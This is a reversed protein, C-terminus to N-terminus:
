GYITFHSTGALLTPLNEREFNSRKCAFQVIEDLIDTIATVTKQDDREIVLVIPEDSETSSISVIPIWSEDHTIEIIVAIPNGLPTCASYEWILSRGQTSHENLGPMDGNIHQQAIQRNQMHAGFAAGLRRYLRMESRACIIELDSLSM